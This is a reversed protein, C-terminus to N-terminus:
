NPNHTHTHLSILSTHPAVTCFYFSEKLMSKAVKQWDREEGASDRREKKQRRAQHKKVTQKEKATFNFDNKGLATIKREMNILKNNGFFPLLPM